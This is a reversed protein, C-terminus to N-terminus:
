FLRRERKRKNLVMIARKLRINRTEGRMVWLYVNLSITVPTGWVYMTVKHKTDFM